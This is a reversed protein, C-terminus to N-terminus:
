SVPSIQVTGFQLSGLARLHQVELTAIPTEFEVACRDASSWVVDACAEVDDARFTLQQGVLPLFPGALRAGTRSIDVIAARHEGASTTLVAVLPAETRPM